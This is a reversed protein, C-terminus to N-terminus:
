VSSQTFLFPVPLPLTIGSGLLAGRESSTHPVSIYNWANKLKASSASWHMIFYSLNFKACYECTQKQVVIVM